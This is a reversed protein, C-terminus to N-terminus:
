ENKVEKEFLPKAGSVKIYLKLNHSEYTNRTGNEWKVIYTGSYNKIIRGKIHYKSWVPNSAGITYGGLNELIVIDGEKFNM